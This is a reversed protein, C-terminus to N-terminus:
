MCSSLLQQTNQFRQTFLASLCRILHNPTFGSPAPLCISIYRLNFRLLFRGFLIDIKSNASMRDHDVGELTTRNGSRSNTRVHALQCRNRVRALKRALLLWRKRRVKMVKNEGGLTPM